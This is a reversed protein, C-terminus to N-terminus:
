QLSARLDRVHVEASIDSYRVVRIFAHMNSPHPLPVTPKGGGPEASDPMGCLVWGGIAMLVREAVPVDHDMAVIMPAGGEVGLVM